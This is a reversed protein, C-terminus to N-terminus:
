KWKLAEGYARPYMGGAQGYNQHWVADAGMRGAQKQLARILQSDMAWYAGIASVMGIKEHPRKPKETLVEVAAAPRRPYRMATTKTGDSWVTVVSECSLCCLAALVLLIRTM